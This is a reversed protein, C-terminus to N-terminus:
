MCSVKSSYNPDPMLAMPPDIPIHISISNEVPNALSHSMTKEFYFNCNSQLLNLTPEIPWFKNLTSSYRLLQIQLSVCINRSKVDDVESGVGMMLNQIGNIHLFIYKQVEQWSLKFLM